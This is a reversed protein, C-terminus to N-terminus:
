FADMSDSCQILGRKAESKATPTISYQLMPTNSPSSNVRKKQM